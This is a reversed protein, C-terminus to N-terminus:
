ACASIGSSFPGPFVPPHLAREMSFAGPHIEQTPPALPVPVANQSM